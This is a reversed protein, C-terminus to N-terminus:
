EFARTYPLLTKFLIRLDMWSSWNQIYFLDYDIREQLSTNGRFGNVAAWGTMGPKMRLRLSYSHVSTSFVRVLDAMEPRPGVLSMEGVWVNWLQPLEDLNTRRMWRGLRTCRPDKEEAWKQAENVTGAKMSRFKLIWFEQGYRGSRRQRILVPGPSDLKIACALLVFLPACVILGVTAGTLDVFRKWMRPWLQDYRLNVMGVVPLGTVLSPPRRDIWFRFSDPVVRMKRGLAFCVKTLVGLDRSSVSSEDVLLLTVRESELIVAARNLPGLLAYGGCNQTSRDDKLFGVVEQIPAMSRSSERLLQEMRRTRGVFAVRERAQDGRCFIWLRAVTRRTFQLAGLLFVGMCAWGLLWGQWSEGWEIAALLFFLGATWAYLFTLRGALLRLSGQHPWRYFGAKQMLVWLVWGYLVFWELDIRDSLSSQGMWRAAPDLRLFLCLGAAIALADGATIVLPWELPRSLTRHLLQRWQIGSCSSDKPRSM